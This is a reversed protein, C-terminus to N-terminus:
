QDSPLGLQRRFEEADRRFEEADRELRTLRDVITPPNVDGDKGHPSFNERGKPSNRQLLAGREELRRITTTSCGLCDALATYTVPPEATVLSWVVVALQDRTQTEEPRPKGRKCAVARSTELTLKYGYHSTSNEFLGEVMEENRIGRTPPR